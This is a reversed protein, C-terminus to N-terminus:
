DAPSGQVILPTGAVLNLGTTLEQGKSRGGNWVDSIWAFLREWGQSSGSNITRPVNWAHVELAM